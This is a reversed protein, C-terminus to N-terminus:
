FRESDGLLRLSIQIVPIIYCFNETGIFIGKLFEANPSFTALMTPFIQETV